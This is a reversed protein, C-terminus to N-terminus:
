SYEVANHGKNGSLQTAKPSRLSFLPSNEKVTCYPIYMHEGRGFDAEVKGVNLLFNPDIASVLGSYHFYALFDSYLRGMM